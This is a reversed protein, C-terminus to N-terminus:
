RPPCKDYDAGNLRWVVHSSHAAVNVYICKGSLPTPPPSPSIPFRFILFQKSKWYSVWTKLTFAYAVTQSDLWFLAFIKEKKLQRLHNQLTCQVKTFHPTGSFITCFATWVHQDWTLLVRWDFTIVLDFKQSIEGNYNCHLVEFHNGSRM